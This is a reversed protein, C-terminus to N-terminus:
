RGAGGPRARRARGRRRPAIGVGIRPVVGAGARPDRRLLRDLLRAFVAIGAFAIVIAIRNWARPCRRPGVLELARSLGGKTGLLFAGVM